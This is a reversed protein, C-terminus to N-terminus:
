APPAVGLLLDELRRSQIDLNFDRLAVERGAAGMARTADPDAILKKLSAAFAQADGEPSLLGTRGDKVCEPIGAHLTAAVACGSLMAEICVMPLGEADGTAARRSPVCHIMAEAFHRPMDVAPIWGPLEINVGTAQLKAALDTKLPGDGVLRVRWGDLKPGLRALAAVLTDVGKKEVWRGAFLILKSKEGPTFRSPDVGNYHVQMKDAPCGAKTLEGKIFESVPLILTADRWLTARRRNYVRAFSNRTNAHKTADGGHYTVVLPLRMARALPLAYAAAKGFHAHLLAPKEAALVDKLKRSILGFQKFGTEGLPGHLKSLEIAKVGVPPQQRLESGVFVPQLRSFSKYANQIFGESPAFMKDAFVLFQRTVQSEEHSAIM